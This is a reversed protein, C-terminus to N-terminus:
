SIIIEASTKQQLSSKIDQLTQRNPPKIGELAYSFNLLEWKHEGLSHYPLLDIREVNPLQGLFDGLREIDEPSDTQGPVVVYRIWVPVANEALLKLNKQNNENNFGTLTLSKEADIQKVDALFLDTYPLVQEISKPPLYLSTDIATHIGELQCQKFLAVIFAAQLLPEGGSCTIGGTSSFYPRNRRLIQMIDETSYSFAMSSNLDWTDPNHCYLCRLLCGQFYIVTRIGPGDLTSFTDISHIKALM